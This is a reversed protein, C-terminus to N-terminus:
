SLEESERQVVMTESDQLDIVRVREGYEIPKDDLCVADYEKLAGNLVINVKGVGCEAPPITVYVEGLKGIAKKTNVNGSEQLNKLARVIWACLYMMLAGLIFGVLLGIWPSHSISYGWLGSWSGVAFFAMIGHLTFFELGDSIDDIGVPVDDSGDVEVDLDEGFGMILLGTKILFFLSSLIAIGYVIQEPLALATFWEM